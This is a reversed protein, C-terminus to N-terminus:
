SLSTILWNKINISNKAKIMKGKEIKLSYPNVKYHDNRIIKKKLFIVKINLKKGVNKLLNKVKYKKSGIINFTKNEHKRNVMIEFCVKAADKAHIYNRVENGDTNKIIKKTKKYKEILQKIPNFQNSNEGFISGFRLINYNLKYKKFYRKLFIEAALKTSSYFGGQESLAYISSAFIIKKVKNKICAEILNITGFLNINITKLPYKNAQEIDAISAFHIVTDINKTVQFLKKKNVISIKIFDNKLIGYSPKKIDLVKISFNKKKLIKYLYLALFGSGGTILIKKKNIKM